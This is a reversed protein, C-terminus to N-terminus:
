GDIVLGILSDAHELVVTKGQQAFVSEFMSVVAFCIVIRALVM